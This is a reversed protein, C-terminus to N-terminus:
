GTYNAKDQQQAPKTLRPLPIHSPLGFEEEFQLAKLNCKSIIFNYILLRLDESIKKKKWEKIVIKIDEPKDPVVLVSGEFVIESFDPEHKISYKYHFKLIDGAIEVSDKEIDTIELSTKIDIKGKLPKKREASIKKFSFGIIRM